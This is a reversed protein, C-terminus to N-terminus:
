GKPFSLTMGQGLKLGQVHGSVKNDLTQFHTHINTGMPTFVGQHQSSWFGVLKVDRGRLEFPIQIKQHAEMGPPTDPTANVIHFDVLEPRGTMVFPFAQTLGVKAGAQGVFREVDAYTSLEPVDQTQWAPVEAWVFFPSGAKFSEQVHVLHDAGVRALSPRSDAITVEGTMGQIPGIGYLHPRDKLTLLDLHAARDGTLITQRQSGVFSLSYGPGDINSPADIASAAFLRSTVTAACVGCGTVLGTHFLQRRTLM